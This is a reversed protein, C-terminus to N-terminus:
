NTILRAFAEELVPMGDCEARGIFGMQNSEAYLETLREIELDLADVINYFSFDGIAGVYKGTTFINPVYESMFFPRDLILSPQGGSIAPQWLYEGQTTKLKRVRKVFERSLAWTSKIQYQSKLSYLADFLPDASPIDTTSGTQVDRATSIGNNSATFIGLPQQAGTGVLFGKEQPVAFKYSMREMVKAEIKANLRMLKKSIKIRKALPHPRLERKGFAMSQDESGTAIESTWDADDPDSTITPIGLSQANAVTDITSLQRMFVQNNVSQIFRDSFQESVVTSGGATDSDSQLAARIQPSAGNFASSGNRLYNSFVTAYEATGRISTERGAQAAAGEDALPPKNRAQSGGAIKREREEQRDYMQIKEELDNMAEDMVRLKEKEDANPRRKEGDIKDLVQRYEVTTRQLDDKLEISKRTVAMGLVTHIQHKAHLGTSAANHAEHGGLFFVVFAFIIMAILTIPLLAPLMAFGALGIDRTHGFHRMNNYFKRKQGATAFFRKKRM